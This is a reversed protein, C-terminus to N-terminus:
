LSTTKHLHRSITDAGYVNGVLYHLCPLYPYEVPNVEKIEIDTRGLQCVVSKAKESESDGRLVFLVPPPEASKLRDLKTM